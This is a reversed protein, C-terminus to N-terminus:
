RYIVTAYWGNIGRAVGIDIAQRQGWYCCKSVAHNASVTSFGVGEYSGAGMSGGVHRCRGESAQRQAKRQAISEAVVTQQRHVTEQLVPVGNVAVLREGPALRFESSVVPRDSPSSQAFANSCCVLACLLFLKRM